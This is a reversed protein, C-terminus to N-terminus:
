IYACIAELIPFIQNALPLETQLYKRISLSYGHCHQLNNKINTTWYKYCFADVISNCISIGRASIPMQLNMFMTIGWGHWMASASPPVNDQSQTGGKQKSLPQYFQLLHVKHPRSDLGWLVNSIDRIINAETQGPQIIETKQGSSQKEFLYM